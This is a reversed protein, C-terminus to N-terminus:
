PRQQGQRRLSDLYQRMTENQARIGQQEARGEPNIRMNELVKAPDESATTGAAGARNSGSSSGDSFEIEERAKSTAWDMIFYGGIVPISFYVV